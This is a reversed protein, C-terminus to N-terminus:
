PYKALADVENYVDGMDVTTQTMDILGTGVIRELEDLTKFVKRVEFYTQFLM